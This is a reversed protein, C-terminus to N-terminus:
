TVIGPDSAILQALDLRTGLLTLNKLRAQPHSSALAILDLVSTEQWHHNGVCAESYSAEENDWGRVLM